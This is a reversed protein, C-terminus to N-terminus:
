KATVGTLKHNTVTQWAIQQLLRNLPEKDAEGITKDGAIGAPIPLGEPSRRYIVAFHCYASLIMLPAKAHGWDDRFLDWQKKLGPATGAVIKERLAVSAEGVPVVYLGDTKLEKNLRAVYEEVDRCYADNKKRLEAVDTKDHDCGKRVELPYVPEYTDNPLWYEQVLVRVKPNHEVALKAFEDIGTDPLWIPALTLVDVNGAQLAKKAENKEDPVNWHQIVRSGGISSIGVYQQDDIGAAKAMEILLPRVFVHFSHGCTFIRQGKVPAEDAAYTPTSQPLGVSVVFLMATVIRRRVVFSRIRYIMTGLVRLTKLSNERIIVRITVPECHKPTTVDFTALRAM